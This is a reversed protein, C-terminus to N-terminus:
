SDGRIEPIRIGEALGDIFAPSNGIPQPQGVVERQLENQAGILRDSFHSPITITVSFGPSTTTIGRHPGYDSYFMSARAGQM